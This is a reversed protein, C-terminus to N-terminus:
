KKANNYDEEKEEELLSDQTQLSKLITKKDIYNM